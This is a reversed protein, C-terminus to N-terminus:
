SGEKERFYIKLFEELSFITTFKGLTQTFSLKMPYLNSTQHGNEKLREFINNRSPKKGKMASFNVPKVMKMQLYDTKERATALILM